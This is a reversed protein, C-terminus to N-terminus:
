HVGSEFQSQNGPENGAERNDRCNRYRQLGSLREDDRADFAVRDHEVTKLDRITLIRRVFVGGGDARGFGVGGEDICRLGDLNERTLEDFIEARDLDGVEVAADGADSLVGVAADNEAAKTLLFSAVVADGAAGVAIEADGTKAVNFLDLDEFAGRGNEVAAVLGAPEDVDDRAFGAGFALAANEGAVAGAIREARLEIEGTWDVVVATM